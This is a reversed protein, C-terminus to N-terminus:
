EVRLRELVKFLPSEVWFFPDSAMGDVEVTFLDLRLAMGLIIWVAVEPAYKAAGSFCLDNITSNPRGKDFWFVKKSRDSLNLCLLHGSIKWSGLGM